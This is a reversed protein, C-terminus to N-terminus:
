IEIRFELRWMGSFLLFMFVKTNWCVTRSLAWVFMKTWVFVKSNCVKQSFTTYRYKSTPIPVSMYIFIHIRLCIFLHCHLEPHRSNSGCQWSGMWWESVSHTQSHTYAHTDPPPLPPPYPSLFLLPCRLGCHLNRMWWETLGFKLLLPFPSPFPLSSINEWFSEKSGEGKEELLWHPLDTGVNNRCCLWSNRQKKSEGEKALLWERRQVVRKEVSVRLPLSLPLSVSLSSPPVLCSLAKLRSIM